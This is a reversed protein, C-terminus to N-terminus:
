PRPRFLTTYPFLTSRPPRRIMLFFFYCNTDSVTNCITQNLLRGHLTNWIAQDMNGLDEANTLYVSHRTTLYMIFFASFAVALLAVLGTALWFLWTHPLPDAPPYLYLRSRWVSLRKRWTSSTVQQVEKWLFM